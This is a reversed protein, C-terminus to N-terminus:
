APTWKTQIQCCRVSATNQYLYHFQEIIEEWNRERQCKTVLKSVLVAGLEETSLTCRCLFNKFSFGANKIARLSTLKSLSEPHWVQWADWGTQTAGLGNWIQSVGFSFAHVYSSHFQPTTASFWPPLSQNGERPLNVCTHEHHYMRVFPKLWLARETDTVFFINWSNPMLGPSCVLLLAVRKLPEEVGSKSSVTCGM